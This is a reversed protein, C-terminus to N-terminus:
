GREREAPQQRLEKLTKMLAQYDIRGYWKNEDRAWDELLTIVKEASTTSSHSACGVDSLTGGGILEMLKNIVKRSPKDGKCCVVYHMLLPCEKTKGKKDCTECRLPHPAGTMTAGLDLSYYGYVKGM